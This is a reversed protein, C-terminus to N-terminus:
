YKPTLINQSQYTLNWKILFEEFTISDKIPIQVVGKGLKKAKLKKLIGPSNRGILAYTFKTKENHNLNKLQYTFITHGQFGLKESISKNDILSIAEILISQRALFEKQFLESLNITKIDLNPIKQTLIEKFEQSINTRNRLPENIFIILIDMDRARSKGKTASGYLVIDFINNKKVFKKSQSILYKSYNEQM